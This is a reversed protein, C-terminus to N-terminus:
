RRSRHSRRKGPRVPWSRCACAVACGEALVPEAAKAIERAHRRVAALLRRVEGGNQQAVGSAGSLYVRPRGGGKHGLGLQAEEVRYHRGEYTLPGDNEWLGHM